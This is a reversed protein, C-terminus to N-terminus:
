LARVNEAFSFKARTAENADRPDGSEMVEKFWSEAGGGGRGGPM